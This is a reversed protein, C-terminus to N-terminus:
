KSFNLKESLTVLNHSTPYSPKGPTKYSIHQTNFFGATAPKKKAPM